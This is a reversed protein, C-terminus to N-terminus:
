NNQKGTKKTDGYNTKLFINIDVYEDNKRSKGYSIIDDEIVVITDEANDAWYDLPIKRNMVSVIKFKYAHDIIKKFDEKTPAKILIKM